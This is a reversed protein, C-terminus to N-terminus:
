IASEGAAKSALDYAELVDRVFVKGRTPKLKLLEDVIPKVKVDSVVVSVHVRNIYEPTMKKGYWYSRVMEPVPEHPIKGRGKVESLSIGGVDHKHLVETTESVNESPIYIDLQRM